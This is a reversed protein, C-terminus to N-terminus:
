CEMNVATNNVIALIYFFYLHVYISSDTFFFFFFFHHIWLTSFLEAMFFFVIRCYVVVYIFRLSIMCVFYALWLLVFVAHNWTYSTELITLSVLERTACFTLSRTNNRCHSLNSSCYPNSGQDPDFMGHAHGFNGCAMPMALFLIFYDLEYFCLLFHHNGPTPAPPFSSSSILLYLIENKCSHICELPRSHLM